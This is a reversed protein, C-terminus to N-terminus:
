MCQEHHMPGYSAWWYSHANYADLLSLFPNLQAEPQQAPLLLTLVLLEALGHLSLAGLLLRLLLLCVDRVDGAQLFLPLLRYTHLM